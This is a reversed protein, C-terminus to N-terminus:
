MGAFTGCWISTGFSTVNETTFTSVFYYRSTPRATRGALGSRLPSIPQSVSVLCAPRYARSAAM